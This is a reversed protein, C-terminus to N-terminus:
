LIIMADGFSFFRYEKQVAHEYIYLLEDKGTLASVMMLLSSKPLHFNTILSDISRITDDPQIFISTSSKLPLFHREQSQVDLASELVRTTTTGVATIHDAANLTDVQAQAIEFQETHLKKAAIEDDGIPAFTGLGVHLTVEAFAYEERLSHLQEDTFHLGATPAAKSGLPKAYRTQYSDDLSENPAIYPPLPTRLHPILRSDDLPTNFTLSRHGHENIGDVTANLGPALAVETGLKFKKGPRVMATVRRDDHRELIFVEFDGFVMRCKEVKSNNVVLTTKPTLYTNLNYFYDDTISQNSRDYVLLRSHNRPSAPEQAILKKPLHYDFDQITFLPIDKM